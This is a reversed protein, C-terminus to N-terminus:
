AVVLPRTWLVVRFAGLDPSVREESVDVADLVFRFTVIRQSSAVTADSVEIEVDRTPDRPSHMVASSSTFLRRTVASVLADLADRTCAEYKLYYMVPVRDDHGFGSLSLSSSSPSSSSSSSSSPPALSHAIALRRLKQAAQEVNARAAKVWPADRTTDHLNAHELPGVPYLDAAVRQVEEWAARSIPPLMRVAVMQRERDATADQFRVVYKGLDDRYCPVFGCATGGRLLFAPTYIGVVLKYFGSPAGRKYGYVKRALEFAPGAADGLLQYLITRMDLTDDEGTPELFGTGENIMVGHCHRSREIAQETDGWEASATPMVAPDITSGSGGGGSGRRCWDLWMAKPVLAVHMHADMEKVDGMREENIQASSVGVLWLTSHYLHAVEVLRRLAPTMRAYQERYLKHLEYFQFNIELASDECDLARRVRCFDFSEILEATLVAHGGGGGVKDRSGRGRGQGKSISSVNAYVEDPIYNCVCVFLTLTECLVREAMSSRQPSDLDAVALWRAPTLDYRALVIQLAQEYYRLNPEPLPAGIYAEFPEPGVRSDYRWVNIGNTCEYRTSVQREFFEIWRMMQEEFLSLNVSLACQAIAELQSPDRLAVETPQSRLWIRAPKAPMICLVGKNYHKVRMGPIGVAYRLVTAANQQALLHILPIRVSGAQNMCDEGGSNAIHDFVDINLTSVFLTETSPNGLRWRLGDLSVHLKLVGCARPENGNGNSVGDGVAVPVGAGNGCPLIVDPIHVVHVAPARHHCAHAKARGDRIATADLRKSPYIHFSFRREAGPEYGIKLLVAFKLELTTDESAM